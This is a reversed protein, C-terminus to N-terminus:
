ANSFEALTSRAERVARFAENTAISSPPITKDALLAIIRMLTAFAGRTMDGVNPDIWFGGFERKRIERHWRPNRCYATVGGFNMAVGHAINNRLIAGYSAASSWLTLLVKLNSDPITTTHQDLDTLLGMISKTDTLPRVNEPEFETLRWIARELFYEISGAYTIIAGIQFGTMLDLGWRAEIADPRGYDYARGRSLKDEM